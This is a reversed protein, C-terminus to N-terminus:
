GAEGASTKGLGPGAVYLMAPFPVLPVPVEVKAFVKPLPVSFPPHFNNTASWPPVAFLVTILEQFSVKVTLRGVEVVVVTVPEGFGAVVPVWTVTVAVTFELVVTFAPDTVNTSPVV